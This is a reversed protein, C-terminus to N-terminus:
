AQHKDLKKGIFKGKINKTYYSGPKESHFIEAMMKQPVDFYRFRDGKKLEILLGATNYTINKIFSGTVVRTPM